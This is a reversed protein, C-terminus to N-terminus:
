EFGSAVVLPIGHSLEKIKVSVGKDLYKKVEADLKAVSLLMGYKILDDTSSKADIIELQSKIYDRQTETM